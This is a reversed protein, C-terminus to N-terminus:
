MLKTFENLAFKTAMQFSIRRSFLNLTIKKNM